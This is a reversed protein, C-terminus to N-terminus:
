EMEKNKRKGTCFGHEREKEIEKEWIESEREKKKEKQLVRGSEKERNLIQVTCPSAFLTRNGNSEYIIISSM